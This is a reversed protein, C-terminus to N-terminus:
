DALDAAQASMACQSPKAAHDKYIEQYDM